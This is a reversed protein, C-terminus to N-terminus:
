WVKLDFRNEGRNVRECYIRFTKATVGVIYHNRRLRFLDLDDPNKEMMDIIFEDTDEDRHCVIVSAMRKKAFRDTWEKTKKVLQMYTSQSLAKWYQIEEYPKGSLRAEYYLADYHDLQALLDAFTRFSFMMPPRVMM